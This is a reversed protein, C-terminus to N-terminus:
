SFDFTSFTNPVVLDLPPQTLPPRLLTSHATHRLASRASTDATNSLGTTYKSLAEAGKKM